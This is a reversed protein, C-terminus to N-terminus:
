TLHPEQGGRFHSLGPLPSGEGRTVQLVPFVPSSNHRGRKITKLNYFREFLFSYSILGCVRTYEDCLSFSYTQYSVLALNTSAGVEGLRPDGLTIPHSSAPCTTRGREGSHVREQGAGTCLLWDLFVTARLWTWLM